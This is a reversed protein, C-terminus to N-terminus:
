TGYYYSITTANSDGCLTATVTVNYQTNYFLVLQVSTSTIFSMNVPDPVTAVTYTEGSFQSWELTVTFNSNGFSVMDPRIIEPTNPFDTNATVYYKSLFIYNSIKTLLMGIHMDYVHITTMLVVSSVSSSNLGTCTIVTEELNSTVNMVTMTSVLPLAGPSSVRSFTFNTSDMLIPPVILNQDFYSIARTEPQRLSSVSWELFTHNTSCM